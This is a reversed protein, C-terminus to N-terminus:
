HGVGRRRIITSPPPPPPPLGFPGPAVRRAAAFADLLGYGYQSDFGPKGLDRATAEMAVILDSAFLNPALSWLIAAVGSVHPTAMSTGSLMEYDDGRYSEAITGPNDLIKQGPDSMLAVTLPWDFAKDADQDDCTATCPRILTWSYRDDLDNPRALIILGRAGAAKANRAKDNFSLGGRRIVAINDKVAAPFDSPQGINCFIYPANVDGKPSGILPVAELTDGAVTVDAVDATGLPVTSLISVGPAVIDLRSGKNSFRALLAEDDVAGVAFVGPYRAPYNIGDLGSNGAAAIIFLDAGIARRFVEEEAASTSNSGLSLSVIWHGGKTRKSELVWDLGAILSEDTGNGDQDLVKVAFIRANPAVGVVGINNDAAAITGAVHTGHHNDDFVNDSNDIANYGGRFAAMLEPHHYDIGTDLIAVNVSESAGRTVFWVDRAHVLDIGYPVTQKLQYISTDTSPKFAVEPADLLHREVVPSVYRVDPSRRLRAVEEATLTAAFGDIQRFERVQRDTAPGDSQLLQIQAERASPRTMVIYRGASGEAFLPAALACLALTLLFQKM